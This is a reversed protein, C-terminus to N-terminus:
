KKRQPLHARITTNLTQLDRLERKYADVLSQLRDLAAGHRADEIRDLSWRVYELRDLDDRSLEGSVLKKSLLAKREELLSNLEKDTAALANLRGAERWGHQEIRRDIAPVDALAAPMTAFARNAENADLEADLVSKLVTDSLLM